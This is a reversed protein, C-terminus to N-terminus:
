LYFLQLGAEVKGALLDACEEVTREKLSPHHHLSDLDRYCCSYTDETCVQIALRGDSEPRLEVRSQRAQEVLQRRAGAASLSAGIMTPEILEWESTGLKFVLRQESLYTPVLHQLRHGRFHVERHSIQMLRSGKSLSLRQMQIAQGQFEGLGVTDPLWGQGELSELLQEHDGVALLEGFLTLLALM